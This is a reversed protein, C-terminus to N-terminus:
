ELGKLSMNGMPGGFWGTLAPENNKGNELQPFKLGLCPLHVDGLEYLQYMASDPISYGARTRSGM